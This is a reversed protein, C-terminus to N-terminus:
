PRDGGTPVVDQAGLATIQALAEAPLNVVTLRHGARRWAAGAVALTQVALAGFLTVDRADLEIDVGARAKLDRALATARSTDLRAPLLLTASM